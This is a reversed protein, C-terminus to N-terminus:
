PARSASVASEWEALLRLLAPNPQVVPRKKQVYALAADRSWGHEHMLYATVAAGSRNMGALCHVYIPRGANRQETIFEVVRRLWCLDPEDGGEFIPEWLVADVEYTDKRGCLNVVAKTGVPPENVASGLYLGEEIISYPAEYSQELWTLWLWVALVSVLTIAVLIRVTKKM